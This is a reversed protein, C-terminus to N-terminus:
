TVGPEDDEQEMQHRVPRLADNDQIDDVPSEPPLALYQEPLPMLTDAAVWEPPLALYETPQEPLPMLTDSAVWRGGHMWRRGTFHRGMRWRAVRPDIYPDSFRVFIDLGSMAADDIVRWEPEPKAAELALTNAVAIDDDNDLIEEMDRMVATRPALVDDSHRRFPPLGEQDKDKEALHRENEADQRRLARTERAAALQTRLRERREEPTETM